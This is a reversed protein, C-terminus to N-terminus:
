AIAEQEGFKGALTYCSRRVRCYKGREDSDKVRPQCLGHPMLYERPPKSRKDLKVVDPLLAPIQNFLLFDSWAEELLAIQDVVAQREVDGIHIPQQDVSGEDKDVYVAWADEVRGHGLAELVVAQSWVQRAHDLRAATMTGDGQQWAEARRHPGAHTSESKVEAIVPQEGHRYVIDALAALPLEPHWGGVEVGVLEYAELGAVGDQMLAHWHHGLEFTLRSELPTDELEIPAGDIVTAARILVAQRPCTWMSSAHWRWIGDAGPNVHWASDGKADLAATLIARADLQAPQRQRM